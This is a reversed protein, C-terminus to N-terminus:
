PHCHILFREPAAADGQVTGDGCTGDLRRDEVPAGAVAAEQGVLISCRVAPPRDATCGGPAAGDRLGGVPIVTLGLRAKGRAM